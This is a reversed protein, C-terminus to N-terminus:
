TGTRLLHAITALPIFRGDFEVPLYSMDRYRWREVVGFKMPSTGDIRVPRVIYRIVIRSTDAPSTAGVWPM